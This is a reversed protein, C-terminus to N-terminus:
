RATERRLREIDESLRRMSAEDTGHYYGRIRAVPDVLVFRDSHTILDGSSAADPPAEAVNLHFGEGILRYLDERSGTLFLWRSPEAGHADAYRGLVSPTDWDPDVSFSVFLVESRLAARGDSGARMGSRSVAQHMAQDLSAMRATLTPCMGTCRTFIFDAVWYKGALDRLTVARGSVDKLDFAPVAGYDGLNSLYSGAGSAPGGSSQMLARAGSAMTIALVAALAFWLSRSLIRGGGASSPDQISM